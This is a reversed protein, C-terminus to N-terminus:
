GRLRDDGILRDPAPLVERNAPLADGLVLRAPRGKRDELNELYGGDVAGAVRRSIASKDLNLAEKLDAQRVEDHGEVRSRQYFYGPGFQM